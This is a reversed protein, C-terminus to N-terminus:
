KSLYFGSVCEIGRLSLSISECIYIIITEHRNSLLIGESRTRNDREIERKGSVYLREVAVIRWSAFKALGGGEM